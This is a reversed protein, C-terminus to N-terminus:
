GEREKLWRMAEKVPLARQIYFGQMYDIGMERIMDCQAQTEIGECLTRLHVSHFLANMGQLLLKGKEHSAALLLERDIKVLDM